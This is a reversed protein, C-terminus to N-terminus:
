NFLHVTVTEGKRIDKDTMVYGDVVSSRPSASILSVGYPDGASFLSLDSGDYGMTELGSSGQKVFLIYSNGDQPLSINSNMIVRTSPRPINTFYHRVVLELAAFAGTPKGPLGFVPTDNVVGVALPKGPRIRVKHFVMEGLEKIVTHVHDREGVSVGGTTLVVDYDGTAAEIMDLTMDYDDPVTGVLETDCGWEQMFGAVMLANTNKITGNFIETGTSIIGVNTKKLVAVEDVDLGYLLAMSQPSIRQYKDLIVDRERYDTGARLVHTWPPVVPGTLIDGSVQTDEFKVVANAGDPLFAGTAVAAAMGPGIHVGKEDGAYVRENVQLPYGHDTHIAYGDMTAIDYEPSIRTAVVSEALERGLAENLTVPEHERYYYYRSKLDTVANVAKKVSIMEM